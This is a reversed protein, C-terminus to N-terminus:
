QKEMERAFVPKAVTLAAIGSRMEDLAKAIDNRNAAQEGAAFHEAAVKSSQNSAHRKAIYWILGAVLGLGGVPLLWPGVQDLFVPTLACAGGAIGCGMAIPPSKLLAFGLVALLAFGAAAFYFIRGNEAVIQEATKTHVGSVSSTTGSEGVTQTTPLSADSPARAFSGADTTSEYVVLGTVPDIIRTHRTFDSQTEACGGVILVLILTILYRM